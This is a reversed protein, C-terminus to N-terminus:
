KDWLHRGKQLVGTTHRGKSGDFVLWPDAARLQGVLGVSLIISLALLQSLSRRSFLM